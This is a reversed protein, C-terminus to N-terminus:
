DPLEPSNPEFIPGVERQYSDPTNYYNPTYSHNPGRFTYSPTKGEWYVQWRKLPLTLPKRTDIPWTPISHPFNQSSNSPNYPSKPSRHHKPPSKLTKLNGESFNPIAPLPLDDLLIFSKSVKMLSIPNLSKFMLLTSKVHDLPLDDDLNFLHKNKGPQSSM